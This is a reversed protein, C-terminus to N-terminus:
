RANKLFAPEPYDRLIIGDLRESKALSSVKIQRKKVVFHGQHRTRPQGLFDLKQHRINGYHQNRPARKQGRRFQRKDISVEPKSRYQIIEKPCHSGQRFRFHRPHRIM